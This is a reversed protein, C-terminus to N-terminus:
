VMLPFCFNLLLRLLSAQSSVLRWLSNFVRLIFTLRGPQSVSLSCVRKPKFNFKKIGELLTTKKQKASEFKTPDDVVDQTHRLAEASSAAGPLRDLSPDPTAIDHRVEEGAQSPTSTEVLPEVTPKGAATGWVVLSRLVSVLCELGQRKLQSESLGINSTDM